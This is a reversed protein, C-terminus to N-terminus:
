VMDGNDMVFYSKYCIGFKEAIENLESPTFTDRKMKQGFTQPSKGCVRAMEAISINLKVALIKLQEETSM